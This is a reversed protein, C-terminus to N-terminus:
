VLVTVRMSNLKALESIAEFRESYPEDRTENQIKEELAEKYDSITYCYRVIHGIKVTGILAKKM